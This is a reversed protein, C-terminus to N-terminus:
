FVIDARAFIAAMSPSSARIWASAELPKGTKQVPQIRRM